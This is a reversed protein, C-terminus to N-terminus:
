AATPTIPEALPRDWGREARKQVGVAYAVAEGPGREYCQRSCAHAQTDWPAGCILCPHEDDLPSAITM